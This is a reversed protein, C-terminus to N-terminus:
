ATFSAPMLLSYPVAGKYIGADNGDADLQDTGRPRDRETAPKDFESPKAATHVPASGDAGGARALEHGVANVAEAAILTPTLTRAFSRRPVTRSRVHSVDISIRFHRTLSEARALLEPACPMHRLRM